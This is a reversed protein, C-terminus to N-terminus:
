PYRIFKFYTLYTINLSFLGSLIMCVYMYERALSLLFVCLITQYSAVAKYHLTNILTIPTLYTLIPTSILM